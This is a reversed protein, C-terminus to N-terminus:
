TRVPEIATLQKLRVSAGEVHVLSAHAVEVADGGVLGRDNRQEADHVSVDAIQRWHRADKGVIVALIGAGHCM